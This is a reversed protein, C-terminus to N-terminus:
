CILLGWPTYPNGPILARPNETFLPRKKPAALIGAKRTPPPFYYPRSIAGPQQNNPSVPFSSPTGKRCGAVLTITEGIVLLTQVRPCKTGGPM